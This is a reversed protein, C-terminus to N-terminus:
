PNTSFIEKLRTLAGGVEIPYGMEALTNGIASVTRTVHQQNVIGMSGIRFVKGKLEGFGDAVLVRYKEKLHRRFVVDQLGPPNRFALVTNSRVEGDALPELGMMVLSSYFASACRRHRAIRNELGEKLVMDLAVDLAFMLNVAPTFPTQGKELFRLYKALNLFGERPPNSLVFEQARPSMSILALGPPAALCKQTATVCIDIGWEDVPLYDGGLHSIADVIVFSGAERAAKTVRDIYPLRVGTSTENAVLIVASAGKEIEELLDDMRPVSGLPARVRVVNAGIAQAFDGARSGFEGFETVVVRDGSRVLAQIAADVGSTGSGTLILIEGKTQFVRKLKDTISGLLQAFEEGRHNIPPKAMAELVEEPVNTPGPIMLLYPEGIRDM